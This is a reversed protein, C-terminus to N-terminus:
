VIVGSASGSNLRWWLSATRLSTSRRIRSIGAGSKRLQQAGRHPLVLPQQEEVARHEAEARAQEVQRDEPSRHGLVWVSFRDAGREPSPALRRVALRPRRQADAQRPQRPRAQHRAARTTARRDGPLSTPRHALRAPATSRSERVFRRAASSRPSAAAGLAPRGDSRSRPASSSRREASTRDRRCAGRRRASGRPGPARRPGCGAGAPSRPGAAPPRRGCPRGSSMPESSTAGPGRSSRRPPPSGGGRGRRVGVEVVEVPQPQDPERALRELVRQAVLHELCLRVHDLRHAPRARGCPAGCCGGSATRRPSRGATGATPRRPTGSGRDPSPSFSRPRAGAALRCAFPSIM